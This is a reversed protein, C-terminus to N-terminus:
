RIPTPVVRKIQYRNVKTIIKELILKLKESLKDAESLPYYETSYTDFISTVKNFNELEGSSSPTDLVTVTYVDVEPDRAGTNSVGNVAGAEGTWNTGSDALTCRLFDRAYPTCASGSKGALCSWGPVSGCLGPTGPCFINEPCPSYPIRQNPVGDTILIEVQDLNETATTRLYDHMFALGSGVSTYTFIKRCAKSGTDGSHGFGNNVASRIDNLSLPSDPRVAVGTPTGDAAYSTYLWDSKLEFVSIGVKIREHGETTELENLFNLVAKKQEDMRSTSCTPCAKEGMSATCDLSMVIHTDHLFESETETEEKTIELNTTGFLRKTTVTLTKLNGEEKGTTTLKTGDPLVEDSTFPFDFANPYGGLFRALIDYIKSEAHYTLLLIDSLARTRHLSLLLRSQWGAILFVILVAMLMVLILTVAGKQNKRTKM